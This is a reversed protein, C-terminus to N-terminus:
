AARDTWYRPRNYYAYLASEYERDVPRADDYEPAHRITDRTLAVAVTGDEWNVGRLWEPAILVRKGAWWNGTDVVLYCITWTREDVLFDQVHGIDGDLAHIAYGTVEDTGHLHAAAADDQELRAQVEREIAGTVDLALPYPEAGWLSAGAWYYPVGYYKAFATEHQRSITPHADIDPAAQVQARSLSAPLRRHTWDPEHVSAPSILVHRGSFWGGSKVVLYRVTWHEDDFYLTEVSGIDGDVAGITFGELASAKSLM